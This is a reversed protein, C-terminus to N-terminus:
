AVFYKHGRRVVDGRQMLMSLAQMTEANTTGVASTLEDLPRGRIATRLETMVGALVAPAPADAPVELVAVRASAPKQALAPSVTHVAQHTSGNARASQMAVASDQSGATSHHAPGDAHSAHVAVASRLSPPTAGHASGDAHSAYVAAGQSPMTARRTSGDAHSAYVAASQSPMTARRTSGDAHSAYVAAGQSPMTAHRTSGSARVAPANSAARHAADAPLTSAGAQEMSKRVVDRPTSVSHQLMSPLTVPKSPVQSLRRVERRRQSDDLSAM